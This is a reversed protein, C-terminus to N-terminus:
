PQRWVRISEAAQSNSRVDTRLSSSDRLVKGYVFREDIVASARPGSSYGYRDSYETPYRHQWYQQGTEPHLCEILVENGVRHSYVLYDGRISPSAYGDGVALEWVIKPGGAPFKKLLKTEPSVGNHTPGLFTPWDSTVAGAPLPKPKSRFTVQDYPKVTAAAAPVAHQGDAAPDAADLILPLWCAIALVPLCRVTLM